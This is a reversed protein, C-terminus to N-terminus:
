VGRDEGTEADDCAPAPSGHSKCSGGVKKGCEGCWAEKWRGEVKELNVSANQGAEVRGCDKGAQADDRVPSPVWRGSLRRVGEECRGEGEKLDM